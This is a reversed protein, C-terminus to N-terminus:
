VQQVPIVPDGAAITRRHGNDGRPLQIKYKGYTIHGTLQRTGVSVSPKNAEPVEDDFQVKSPGIVITPWRCQRFPYKENTLRTTREGVLINAEKVDCTLSKQWPHENNVESFRVTYECQLSSGFAKPTTNEVSCVSSCCNSDSKARSFCPWSAKPRFVRRLQSRYTGGPPSPTLTEAARQSCVIALTCPEGLVKSFFTKIASNDYKQVCLIDKRRGVSEAGSTCRQNPQAVPLPLKVNFQNPGTWKYCSLHLVRHHLQVTPHIDLMRPYKHSELIENTTDHILCWTHNWALGDEHIEWRKGVPISYGGCGVIPFITLAEVFLQAAFPKVNPQCPLPHPTGPAKEVYTHQLFSVLFRVDNLSSMAGLSNRLAGTPRGVIVDHDNRCCSPDAAYFRHPGTCARRLSSAAKKLNRASDVFLQIDWTAALEKVNASSIWMGRSNSLKFAIVPGQLTPNGYECRYIQCLKTGNFHRLVSLRDYAEGALWSTHASINAMSGYLCEHTGFATGLAVIKSHSLTEDKFRERISATKKAHWKGGAAIVRNVLGRGFAQPGDLAYVADKRVILAGLEPFGFIKSFNLAVFDPSTKSVDLPTTSVFCEADLLSFVNRVGKESANRIADCWHLPLRRGTLDSQAPFVFLKPRSSPATCSEAIWNEVDGDVLCRYGATSLKRLDVLRTHSDVHYGYQFGYSCVDRFWEAILRVATTANAVFVLDYDDPDANVLALARLRIDDIRFLEPLNDRTLKTDM